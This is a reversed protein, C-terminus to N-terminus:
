VKKAENGHGDMGADGDVVGGMGVAEKVDRMPKTQDELTEFGHAKLEKDVEEQSRLKLSLAHLGKEEFEEKLLSNVLRHRKIQPLSNFKSSIMQVAFDPPSILIPIPTQPPPNPHKALDCKLYKPLTYLEPYMRTEGNGGGQARMASHHAHKSSSDVLLFEILCFPTKPLDPSSVCLCGSM